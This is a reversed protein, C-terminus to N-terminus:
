REVPREGYNADFRRTEYRTYELILYITKVKPDDM